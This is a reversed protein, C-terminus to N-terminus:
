LLKGMRQKYENKMKDISDKAIQRVREPTVNLRESIEKLELQRNIGSGDDYLGFRMEIISRERPSLVDLLTTVLEKDFETKQQEEYDNYSATATNYSDIDGYAFATEESDTDTDISTFHVDLLDYKDKIDKKFDDNICNLLEGSTPMRENEQMFKNRAKAVVHFTKYYNTKKVAPDICYKYKNIARLIFWMAYSAFKAGNTVDYKEIAEFLGFNAENIYDTLTETDSYNKAASIVLRQNCCAIYDRIDMYEKEAIFMKEKNKSAKAKSVNQKAESLKTFWEVEEEKTFTPYDKIDKYYRTTNESRDVLGTDAKLNIVLM